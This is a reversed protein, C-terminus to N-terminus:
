TKGLERAAEAAILSAHGPKFGANAAAKAHALAEVHRARWLELMAWTWALMPSIQSRMGHSLLLVAAEDARKMYVLLAGLDGVVDPTTGPRCTM